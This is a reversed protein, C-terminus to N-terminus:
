SDWVSISFNPKGDGGITRELKVSSGEDGTNAHLNKVVSGPLGMHQYILQITIETKNFIFIVYKM